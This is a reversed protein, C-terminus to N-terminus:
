RRLRRAERGTAPAAAQKLALLAPEWLADLHVRPAGYTGRSQQHIQRIQVALAQDAVARASPPRASWAYYGARSVWCVPLGPSVM